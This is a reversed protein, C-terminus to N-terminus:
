TWDGAATDGVITRALRLMKDFVLPCERLPGDMSSGIVIQPTGEIEMDMQAPPNSFDLNIIAGNKMLSDPPVSGEDPAEATRTGASDIFFFEPDALGQAIVSLERHKDADQFSRLLALAHDNPDEGNAAL